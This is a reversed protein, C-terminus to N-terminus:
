EDLWDYQRKKQNKVANKVYGIFAGDLSDPVKDKKEIFDVWQSILDYKDLGTSQLIKGANELTEPRLMSEYYQRKNYTDESPAQKQHRNTFIVMDDHMMVSYDPLHDGGVLQSLMYKFHRKSSNSGCKSQLNEIGIRWTEKTGCHKRAIEYVRRELPKRLRFYNKHLTLVENAEIARFLWESLTVSWELVRGSLGDRRRVMFSEILGFGEIQEEGGTKITTTIRTGDLRELADCLLEYSYGGTGRNAFVLFDRASFTIKRSYERGQKKAAMLQSIAFILIDKDWITAIGKDSPRIEIQADGRVYQRRKLDPKKSLSFIPHEMSAMDDKLAADGIDCLFLDDQAYREPLLHEQRKLELEDM